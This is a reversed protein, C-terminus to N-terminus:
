PDKPDIRRLRSEGPRRVRGVALAIQNTFGADDGAVLFPAANAIADILPEVWEADGAGFDRLVHGHVRAAEGPHGVGIRVRRFGPGFHAAISKLGNHGATGGGQKTRVKGPELDIEDHIVVVGAPPIKYFRAAEAVAVGSKNMFTMPKLALVHHGAIRGKAVLGHHKRRWASFGHRGAIANVAMFGINHRNGAYQNGPNGLGVFLLM